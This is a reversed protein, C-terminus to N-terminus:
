PADGYGVGPIYAYTNRSCCASVSVGRARLAAVFRAVGGLGGPLARFMDFQNRDDIGLNPYSPWM